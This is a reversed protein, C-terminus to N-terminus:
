GLEMLKWQWEPKDSAMSVEVALDLGLKLIKSSPIAKSSKLTGPRSKQISAM